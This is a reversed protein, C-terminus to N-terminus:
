LCRMYCTAPMRHLQISNYKMDYRIPGNAITPLAEWMALGDIRQSGLFRSVIKSQCGTRRMKIYSERHAAANPKKTIQWACWTVKLHAAPKSVSCNAIMKRNIHYGNFTLVSQICKCDSSLKLNHKSAEPQHKLALVHIPNLSVTTPAHGPPKKPKPRKRRPTSVHTATPEPGKGSADCEQLATQKRM